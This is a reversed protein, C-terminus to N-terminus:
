LQARKNFKKARKQNYRMGKNKLILGATQRSAIIIQKFNQNAKPNIKLGKLVLHRNLVLDSM